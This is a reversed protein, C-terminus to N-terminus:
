MMILNRLTTMSVEMRKMLLVEVVYCDVGSKFEYYDFRGNRLQVLQGTICTSLDIKQEAKEEQKLRKVEKQLEQIQSELQEYKTM